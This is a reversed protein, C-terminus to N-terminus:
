DNIFNEMQTLSIKGEYFAKGIIAGSCGADRLAVLDEYCSVGGSAILHLGPFAKLIEKYLDISPGQMMGDRSIDTCFIMNVKQEVLKKIFNFIDIGADDKWGHIKIRKDLVDAGPLFKERGFEEILEEFLQPNKVIVSSMSIMDAGANFASKIDEKKKMGGGYDMVFNLQSAITEVVSINKLAQGDAGDLDVIHLRGLGADAFSQAVHLPNNSYIIKKNFDGKQLRVCKGDIIDIAPILQM